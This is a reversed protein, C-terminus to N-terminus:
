FNTKTFATNNGGLLKGFLSPELSLYGYRMLQNKRSNEDLDFQGQTYGSAAGLIPLASLNLTTNKIIDGVSDQNIISNITSGTMGLGGVVSQRMAGYKIHMPM